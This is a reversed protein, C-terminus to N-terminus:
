AAPSAAGLRELADRLMTVQREPPYRDPDLLANVAIGDALVLPEDSTGLAERLVPRITDRARECRLSLQEGLGPEGLGATSLIHWVMAEARREDDLPLLEALADVIGSSAATARVRAAQRDVLLGYAFVVLERKDRFYHSLVGTTFGAERAIERVSAGALGVREIVRWTAEAMEERRREHSRARPM